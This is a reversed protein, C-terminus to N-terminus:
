WAVSSAMPQISKRSPSTRTCKNQYSYNFFVTSKNKEYLIFNSRHPSKNIIIIYLAFMLIRTNKIRNWYEPRRAFFIWDFYNKCCVCTYTLTFYSWKRWIASENWLVDVHNLTKQFTLINLLIQLIEVLRKNVLHLMVLCVLVATFVM